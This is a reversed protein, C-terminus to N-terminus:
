PLGLVIKGLNPYHRDGEPRNTGHAFSIEASHFFFLDLYELDSFFDTMWMCIMWNGQVRVFTSNEIMGLKSAARCTYNESKQINVLVLVNKGVPPTIDPQVDQDAGTVWKVYPMPSGVAVCTINLDSGAMVNYEPEPPISFMPM